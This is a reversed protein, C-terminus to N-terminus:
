RCQCSAVGPVSIGDVPGKRASIVPLRSHYNMFYFGFETLNLDEALFRLALGWQGSDRPALDPGRLVSTRLGSLRFSDTDIGCRLDANIAETLPRFKAGPRATTLYRRDVVNVQTIVAKRASRAQM